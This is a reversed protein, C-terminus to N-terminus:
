DYRHQFAQATGTYVRKGLIERITTASWRTGGSPALIGRETLASAIGRLMMGSLALDFIDRVVPATEPELVLRSKGGKKTDADAWLYGYPPKASANPKGSAIRARRGAQTRERIRSRESASTYNGVNSLLIDEETQEADQTVYALRAGQQEILYELIHPHKQHRSLRDPKHALLVDGPQLRAIMVDLQPRHLEGSSFIERAVSAVTLGREATWARCAAEQVDLSYNDEQGASSVRCYIHVHSSATDKSLMQVEKVPRPAPAPAVLEPGM